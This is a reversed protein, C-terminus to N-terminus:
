HLVKTDLVYSNTRRVSDSNPNEPNSYFLFGVPGTGPSYYTIVKKGLKGNIDKYLDTVQVCTYGDIVTGYASAVRTITGSYDTNGVTYTAAGKFITDTNELSQVLLRTFSGNSDTEYVKNTENAYYMNRGAMGYYTKGDISKTDDITITYIGDDISAGTTTYSTIKYSWSNGIAAPWLDQQAPPTTDKHKKCATIGTFAIFAISLLKKM